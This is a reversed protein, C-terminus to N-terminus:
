AAPAARSSVGASTGGGVFGAAALLSRGAEQVARDDAFRGREIRVLQALDTRVAALRPSAKLRWDADELFAAYLAIPPAALLLSELGPRSEIAGVIRAFFAAVDAAGPDPQQSHGSRRLIPVESVVVVIQETGIRDALLRGGFTVYENTVALRDAVQITGWAVDAAAPTRTSRDFEAKEARAGAPRWFRVVEPDFHRQSPVDRIAVILYASGREDPLDPHVLFGWDGLRRAATSPALDVAPM